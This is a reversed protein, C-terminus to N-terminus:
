TLPQGAGWATMGASSTGPEERRFDDLIFILFTTWLPNRRSIRSTDPTELM